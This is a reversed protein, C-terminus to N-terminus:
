TTEGLVGAGSHGPYSLQAWFLSISALALLLPATIAAALANASKITYTRWKRAGSMRKRSEPVVFFFPWRGLGGDGDGDDDDGGM